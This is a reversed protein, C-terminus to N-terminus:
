TIDFDRAWCINEKLTKAPIGGILVGEPYIKSILKSHSSVICNDGVQTGKLISCNNAIWVHDGIIVDSQTIQGKIYHWDSDSIFVNWACIFDRGIHIKKQVMILTDSTIGSDSEKERGGFYLSANEMLSIRVGHGIVFDGDVVLKANAMLFIRVPSNGGLHPTVRFRGNVILKSGKGKIIKIGIFPDTIVIFGEGEDIKSTYYISRVRCIIKPIIRIIIRIARKLM